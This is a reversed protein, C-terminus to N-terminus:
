KVTLGTPAAPPVANITDEASTSFPSENNATDFATLRFCYTGDVTPNTVPGSTATKAYTDTKAFAGPTACSGPARYLNYGALDSETNANWSATTAFALFPLAVFALACLVFVMLLLVQKM